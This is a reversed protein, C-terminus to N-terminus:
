PEGPVLRSAAEAQRLALGYAGPAAGPQRVVQWSVNNLPYPSEPFQEALALARQRVPESLTGEARLSARVEEGLLLRAVRAGSGREAGPGPLRRGPPRGLDRAPRRGAAAPPTHAPIRDLGEATAPHQCFLLEVLDRAERAARREPTPPSADWLTVTQGVG